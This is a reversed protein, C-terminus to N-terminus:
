GGLGTSGFLAYGIYAAIGTIVGAGIAVLLGWLANKIREMGEQKKMGGGTALNIGGWGVLVVTIGIAIITIIGSVDSTIRAIPGVISGVGSFSPVVGKFGSLANFTNTSTTNSNTSAFAPNQSGLVAGVGVAFPIIKKWQNMWSPKDM